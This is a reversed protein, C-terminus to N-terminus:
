PKAASGRWEVVVADDTAQSSSHRAGNKQPWLSGLVGEVTKFGDTAQIELWARQRLRQKSVEEVAKTFAVNKFEKYADELKKRQSDTADTIPDRVLIELTLTILDLQAASMFGPSMRNGELQEWHDFKHDDTTYKETDHHNRRTRFLEAREKRILNWNKSAWWQKNLNGLTERIDTLFCVINQVRASDRHYGHAVSGDGDIRLRKNLFQKGSDHDGIFLANPPPSSTIMYAAVVAAVCRVPISVDDNSKTQLEKIIELSELSNLLPLIESVHNEM